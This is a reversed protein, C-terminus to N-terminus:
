LWQNALESQKAYWISGKRYAGISTSAHVNLAIFASGQLVISTADIWTLLWLKLSCFVMAFSGIVGFGDAVPVDDDGEILEAILPGCFPPCTVPMSRGTGFLPLYSFV